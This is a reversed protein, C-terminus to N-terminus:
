RQISREGAMEPIFANRVVQMTITSFGEEVGFSRLNRWTARAASRWDVGHHQYFRRDEVAIFAARVQRPVRSLPVNIRRIYSLRGLPRGSRDLVRRGESPRFAQISAASPCGAFGCTEAWTFSLLLLAIASGALILRWNQRLGARFSAWGAWHKLIM